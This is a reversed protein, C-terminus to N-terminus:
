RTPTCPYSCCRRRFRRTTAPCPRGSGTGTRVGHATGARHGGFAVPPVPPRSADRAPQPAVDQTPRPGRQEHGDVSSAVGSPPKGSHIYWERPCACAGRYRGEGNLTGELGTRRAAEMESQPDVEAQAAGVPRNGPAGFRRDPLGSRAGPRPLYVGVEAAAPDRTVTYHGRLRTRSVEDAHYEAGAVFGFQEVAAPLVTGPGARELVLYARRQWEEEDTLVRPQAQGDSEGYYLVSLGLKELASSVTRRGTGRPFTRRVRERVAGVTLSRYDGDARRALALATLMYGYGGVRASPECADYEGDLEDDAGGELAPEVTDNRTLLSGPGPPPTATHPAPTSPPSQLQLVDRLQRLFVDRSLPNTSAAYLLPRLCSPLTASQVAKLGLHHLFFNATMFVGCDESGRAQRQCPRFVLKLDPWIRELLRQIDGHVPWSPASVWVDLTMRETM